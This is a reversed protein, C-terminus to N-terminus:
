KKQKEEESDSEKVQSYDQKTLEHEKILTVCRLREEMEKYKRVEKIGCGYRHKLWRQCIKEIVFLTLMIYLPFHSSFASSDKPDVYIGLWFMWWVSEDRVRAFFPDKPTLDSDSAALYTLQTPNVQPKGLEIDKLKNMLPTPYMIIM